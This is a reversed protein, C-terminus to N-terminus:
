PLKYIYGVTFALVSNWTHTGNQARTLGKYYSLETTIMDYLEVGGGLHLGFNLANIKNGSFGVKFNTTTDSATIVGGKSQKYSDTRYGWLGVSLVPGVNVFVKLSGGKAKQAYDHFLIPIDIYNFRIKSKTSKYNGKDLPQNTESNMGKQSFILGGRFSIDNNIVYESVAGLRLGYLSSISQYATKDDYGLSSYNLGAEGGIRFQSVANINTIYVICSLLILRRM